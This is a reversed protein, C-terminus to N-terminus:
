ELTNWESLTGRPISFFFSFGAGSFANVSHFVSIIAPPVYKWKFTDSLPFFILRTKRKIFPLLPPPTRCHRWALAMLLWLEPASFARYEEPTIYRHRADELPIYHKKMKKKKSGGKLTRYIKTGLRTNSWFPYDRLILKEVSDICLTSTDFDRKSSSRSSATLSRGGRLIILSALGSPVRPACLLTPLFFLHSDIHWHHINSFFFFLIKWVKIESSTGANKVRDIKVVKVFWDLLCDSHFFM